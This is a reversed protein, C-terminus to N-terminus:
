SPLQLNILVDKKTLKHLDLLSIIELIDLSCNAKLANLYGLQYSHM